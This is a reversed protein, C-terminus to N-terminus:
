QSKETLQYDLGRQQEMCEISLQEVLQPPRCKKKRKKPCLPDRLVPNSPSFRRLTRIFFIIFALLRLSGPVISTSVLFYLFFGSRLKKYYYFLM